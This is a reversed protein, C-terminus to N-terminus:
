AVFFGLHLQVISLRENNDTGLLSPNNDSPGIRQLQSGVLEFFGIRLKIKQWPSPLRSSGQILSNSNSRLECYPWPDFNNACKRRKSKM